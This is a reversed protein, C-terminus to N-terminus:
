MSTRWPKPRSTPRCVGGGAFDPAGALIDAAFPSRPPATAQCSADAMGAPPQAQAQYAGEDLRGPEPGDEKNRAPRSAHHRLREEGRLVRQRHSPPPSGRGRLQTAAMYLLSAKTLTEARNQRPHTTSTACCRAWAALSACRRARGCSRSMPALPPPWAFWNAAPRATSATGRASAQSPPDSLPLSIAM